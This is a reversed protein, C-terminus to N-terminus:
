ITTWIIGLRHHEVPWGALGCHLLKQNTRIGDPVEYIMQALQFLLGDLLAANGGSLLLHGVLDDLLAAPFEAVSAYGQPVDCPASHSLVVSAVKNPM